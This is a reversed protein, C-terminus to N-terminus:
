DKGRHDIEIVPEIVPEIVAFRTEGTRIMELIYPRCTGCKTGCRFREAADQLSTVGAKKLTEFTTAYCVCMTVPRDM